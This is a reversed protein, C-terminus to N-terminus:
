ITVVKKAELTELKPKLATRFNKQSSASVPRWKHMLHSTFVVSM